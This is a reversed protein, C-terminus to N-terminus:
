KEEFIVDRDLEYWYRIALQRVYEWYMPAHGWRKVAGAIETRIMNLIEDKIRIHVSKDGAHFIAEPLPNDTAGSVILGHGFTASTSVQLGDNLCSVPPRNGALSTISVDGAEVGLRSLAYIGMKVGIIAYIGLHGHLENTLVGARWEEVGYREITKAVM